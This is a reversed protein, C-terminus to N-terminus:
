SHAAPAASDAGPEAFVKVTPSKITKGGLAYGKSVVEAVTHYRAPDDTVVEGIATHIRPDFAAGKPDITALGHEELTRVLQGHIYEVGTRWNADVKQWGETNGMAMSFSELVPVLEAILAENASRIIEMREDGSRKVANAYDAKARQWGDLYQKKEEECAALKTRLKAIREAPTTEESTEEFVVDDTDSSPKDQDATHEDIRTDDTDM